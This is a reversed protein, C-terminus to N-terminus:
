AGAVGSSKNKGPQGARKTRRAVRPKRAGSTSSRFGATAFPFSRAIATSYCRVGALSSLVTAIEACSAIRRGLSASKLARFARRVCLWVIGGGSGRIEMVAM